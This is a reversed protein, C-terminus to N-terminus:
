TREMALSQVVFVRPLPPEDFESRLKAALQLAAQHNTCLAFLSSGSGSMLCGLPAHRTMAERLKTILPCLREAPEQLRNFLERGIDVVNGSAYATRMDASSRPEDPVKALQYVEATALGIPPCVMVVHLAQVPTVPEIVEGRGTCWAAPVDLFFAVDSGIEAATACLEAKSLGTGWLDNLGLLTTAANSSGGALGAASPIRKLLAIAAGGQYGTRRRLADAAKIVLNGDGTPLAPDDCWLSLTDAVMFTLTDSLSVAVMLTELDHFGDPRKARLELFLNVKAPASRAIAGGVRDASGPMAVRAPFLM